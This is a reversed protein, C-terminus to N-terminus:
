IAGPGKFDQLDRRSSCSPAISTKGPAIPHENMGPCPAWQAGIPGMPGRIPGMPGM